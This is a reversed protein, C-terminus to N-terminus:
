FTSNSGGHSHTETSAKTSAASSGHFSRFSGHFYVTFSQPPLKRSKTSVVEFSKVFHKRPPKRPLRQAETSAASAEMSTFRLIRHFSEHLSEHFIEHFGSLKRPLESLKWPLLIYLETSTSEHFSEPFGRHFSGHFNHFSGHFHSGRCRGSSGHFSGRLSEHLSSGHFSEHVEVVFVLLAPSRCAVCGRAPHRCPPRFRFRAM